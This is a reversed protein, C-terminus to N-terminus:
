NLLEKLKDEGIWSKIYRSRLFKKKNKSNLNLTIRKIADILNQKGEDTLSKITKIVNEIDKLNNASAFDLNKSPTSSSKKNFSALKEKAEKIHPSTPFDEIFKKLASELYKKDIKQIAEWKKQAEKQIEKEKEEELKEQLKKILKEAEEKYESDPYRNLFSNLGAINSVKAKQWDNQHQQEFEKKQKAKEIDEKTVFSKLESINSIKSYRKLYKRAKKDEVFDNKGNENELRQYVLNEDNIINESAMSFLEQIQPTHIWDEIFLNMEEEYAKLYEEKSHKLNFNIDIKIKGYGLPKAMGINHMYNDNGHFTLASLLAGLEAKKLNHFRIKGTFVSGRDLPKFKTKVNEQEESIISNKISNHLPYRKYGSIKADKDMLTKYKNVKKGDINTQEIYNPYYTPKPTALIAEKEQEFRIFTSKLHSFQVRSKLAREKDVYGFIVQALDLKKTELNQPIAELLTKKYALKFIQTLGIAIIKRNKETYFIPIKEGNLFKKKWYQGDISEENDFYVKKFDNFINSDLAIEDRNEKFIFENKKNDIFGTMVLIGINKSNKEYVAIQRNNKTKKKFPFNEIYGYREYKEKATLINKDYQPIFKKIESEKITLVNGCDKIYYKDGKKVLFGCKKAIGVMDTSFLERRLEDPCDKMKNITEDQCYKKPTMDRVSLPKKLKDKDVVIKSFSMIELVNRVMGKISSGPIYYEKGGERTKYHCFDESNEHDRIFIPSKATITIDIVGSEGDSFPIDHSVKDAWEPFFVKESVPVFNYPAKIM